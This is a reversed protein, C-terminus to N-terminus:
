MWQSLVNVHEALEAISMMSPYDVYYMEEFYSAREAHTMHTTMDFVTQALASLKEYAFPEKGRLAADVKAQALRAARDADNRERLRRLFELAESGTLPGAM